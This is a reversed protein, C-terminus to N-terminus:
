PEQAVGVPPQGLMEPSYALVRFRQLLAPGPRGNGLQQVLQAGGRPSLVLMRRADHHTAGRFMRPTACTPGVPQYVDCGAGVDLWLCGWSWWRSGKPPM